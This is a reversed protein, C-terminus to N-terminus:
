DPKLYEVAIYTGIIPCRLIIIISKSNKGLGVNIHAILRWGFETNKYTELRTQTSTFLSVSSRRANVVCSVIRLKEVYGASNALSDEVASLSAGARCDITDGCSAITVVGLSSSSGPAVPQTVFELHPTCVLM